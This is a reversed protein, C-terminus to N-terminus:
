VTQSACYRWKLLFCQVASNPAIGYQRGAVSVVVRASGLEKRVRGGHQKSKSPRVAHDPDGNVLVVRESLQALHYTTEPRAKAM